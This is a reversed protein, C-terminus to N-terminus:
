IYASKISTLNVKKKIIDLNTENFSLKEILKYNGYSKKTGSADHISYVKNLQKNTDKSCFVILYKGYKQNKFLLFEKVKIKNISGLKSDTMKTFNFYGETLFVNFSEAKLVKSSLTRASKKVAELYQQFISINM